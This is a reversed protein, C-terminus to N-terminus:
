WRLGTPTNKCQFWMLLWLPIFLALYMWFRATYPFHKAVPWWLKYFLRQKFNSVNILSCYTLGAVVTNLVAQAVLYGWQGTEHAYFFIIVFLVVSMTMNKYWWRWWLGINVANLGSQGQSYALAGTGVALGNAVVVDRNLPSEM